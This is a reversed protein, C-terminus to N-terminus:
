IKYRKLYVSLLRVQLRTRGSTKLILIYIQQNKKRRGTLSMAIVCDSADTEAPMAGIQALGPGRHGKDREPRASNGEIM